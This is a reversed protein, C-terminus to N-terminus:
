KIFGTKMYNSKSVGQSKDHIHIDHIRQYMSIMIEFDIVTFSNVNIYESCIEINDKLWYPSTLSVIEVDLKSSFQIRDILLNKLIM